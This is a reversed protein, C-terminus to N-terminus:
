LTDGYGLRGRESPELREDTPDAVLMLIQM